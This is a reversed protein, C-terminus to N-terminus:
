DASLQLARDRAAKAPDFARLVADRAPGSLRDDHLVADFRALLGNLGDLDRAQPEAQAPAAAADGTFACLEHIAQAPAGSTRRVLACLDRLVHLDHGDSM